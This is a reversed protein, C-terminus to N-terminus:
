KKVKIYFVTGTAFAETKYDLRAYNMYGGYTGSAHAVPRMEQSIVARGAVEEVLKKIRRMMHQSYAGPGKWNMIAAIEEESIIDDSTM